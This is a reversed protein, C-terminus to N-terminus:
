QTKAPVLGLIFNSVNAVLVPLQAVLTTVQAQANTQSTGTATIATQMASGLAQYGNYAQTYMAQFQADQAATIQNAKVMAAEQNFLTTLTTGVAEFSTVATNTQTTNTAGMSACGAMFALIVLVVSFRVAKRMRGGTIKLSVEEELQSFIEQPVAGNNRKQGPVLAVM